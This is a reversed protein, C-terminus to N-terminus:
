RRLSDVSVEFEGLQRMLQERNFVAHGFAIEYTIASPNDTSVNNLLEMVPEVGVLASDCLLADRHDYTVQMHQSCMVADFWGAQALGDGMNHMDEFVATFRLGAQRWERFTDVSWASFFLVAQDQAVCALQQWLLQQQEVDNPPLHLLVMDYKPEPTLNDCNSVVDWDAVGLATALAVCDVEFYAPKILLGQKREGLLCSAQALLRNFVEEHLWHHM